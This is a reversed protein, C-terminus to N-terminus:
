AVVVVFGDVREDVGAGDEMDGEDVGCVREGDHEGHEAACTVVGRGVGVGLVYVDVAVNGTAQEFTRSLTWLGALFLSLFWIFVDFIILTEGDCDSGGEEVAENQTERGEM